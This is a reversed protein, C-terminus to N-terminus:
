IAGQIRQLERVVNEAPNPIGVRPHRPFQPRSIRGVKLAHSAHDAAEPHRGLRSLLQAYAAHCRFVDSNFIFRASKAEVLARLLAEALGYKEQTGAELIMEVYSLDALGSTNTRSPTKAYYRLVELYEEEASRFDKTDKFHDALIEHSHAVESVEDPYEAIVRHILEVGKRQVADESSSLLTLGQIKLYQAKNYRTKSRKLRKEFEAEIQASWTKSRFWDEKPV